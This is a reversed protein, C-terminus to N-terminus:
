FMAEIMLAIEDFPKWDRDNALILEYILKGVEKEKIDIGAWDAVSIPITGSSEEISYTNYGVVVYSYRWRDNNLPDKVYLDCLVGLCCYKVGYGDKGRKLAGRGQEYEGSRLAELWKEKIKKNM